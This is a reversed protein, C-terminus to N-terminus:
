TTNKGFINSGFRYIYLFSDSFDLFYSMRCSVPKSEKFLDIDIFVFFYFHSYELDFCFLDILWIFYMLSSHIRSWPSPVAIFSM